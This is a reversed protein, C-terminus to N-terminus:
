CYMCIILSSYYYQFWLVLFYVGLALAPLENGTERTKCVPSFASPVSFALFIVTCHLSANYRTQRSWHIPFPYCPHGPYGVKVRAGNERRRRRLTTDHDRSPPPHHHPPLTVLSMLRTTRQDYAGFMSSAMLGLM